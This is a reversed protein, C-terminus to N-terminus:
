HAEELAALSGRWVAEPTGADAAPWDAEPPLGEVSEGGIRRAAADLWFGVHRVIEVVTHAGAVPRRHATEADVTTLIEALAPGHWAGGHFSRELQDALRSAEAAATLVAPATM